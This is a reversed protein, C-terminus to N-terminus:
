LAQESWLITQDCLKEATVAQKIRLGELTTHLKEKGSNRQVPVPETERGGERKNFFSMALIAYFALSVSGSTHVWM